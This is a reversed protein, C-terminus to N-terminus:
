LEQLKSRVSEIKSHMGEQRGKRDDIDIRTLVRGCDHLVARHCQEIVSMVESFEGEVVTSMPTLQHKLGSEEVIRKCRAVFASIGEGQGLPVISFSAIMLTLIASM